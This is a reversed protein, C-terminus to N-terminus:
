RNGLINNLRKLIENVYYYQIRAPEDAPHELCGHERIHQNNAIAYWAFPQNMKIVPDMTAYGTVGIGWDSSFLKCVNVAMEEAVRNSVSNCSEAHIPNVQLHRAKQGLNYVTIGGHFYQSADTASALATQFIGATVSEAVALTEKRDVLTKKIQNLTGNDILDLDKSTMDPLPLECARLYPGKRGLCMSANRFSVSELPSGADRRFAPM